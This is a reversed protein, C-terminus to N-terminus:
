GREVTELFEERWERAGRNWVNLIASLWKDKTEIDNTPAPPKPVPKYNRIAGEQKEPAARAAKLLASQNKDLGTEHAARKAEPSLGDIKVARDVAHQRAKETEGPVPLVRAAESVGTTSPRGRGSKEGDQPNNEGTLRMWEAIHVSRELPTLDARHLNESIEALRAEKDDRECEIAEIESWGLLRAAELRHHGAVLEVVETPIGNKIRTTRRVIVPSLLGIKAISDAIEKVKAADLPRLRPQSVYM